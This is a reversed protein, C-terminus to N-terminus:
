LLPNKFSLSFKLTSPELLIVCWDNDLLDIFDLESSM